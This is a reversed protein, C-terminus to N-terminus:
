IVSFNVPLILYIYSQEVNRIFCPAKANTMYIAVEEDEIAKLADMLFKPNFGIMLDSGEKFATIDEDMNGISSNMNLSIGNDNISMVLPRKESEKVLLIARDICECLEKKNVVIKTNYNSNIMQKVNYYKGEILRSLIITDAFEFLVFRDMFYMCVTEDIGGPLIRSIEQLTKGPIIASFASYNDKLTVKRISIRHGDLSTVQLQNDNIEFYEGNMIRNNENTSISFITQRILEKLMFQSLTVANKRELSPLLPFDDGDQVSITFKAKNCTIYVTNNEKKEISVQDGPLKRIIDSFIKANVAFKGPLIVDADIRTEIALETDNTTLQIRGDKTEFFICELIPMSTKTSVAKLAINVANLLESQNCVFKM